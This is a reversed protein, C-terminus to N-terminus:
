WCQDAGRVHVQDLVRALREGAVARRDQDGVGGIEGVVALADVQVGNSWTRLALAVSTADEVLTWWITVNM